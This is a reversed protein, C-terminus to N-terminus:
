LRKRFDAVLWEIMAAREEDTFREGLCYTFDEADKLLAADEEEATVDGKVDGFLANRAQHDHNFFLDSLGEKDLIIPIPLAM